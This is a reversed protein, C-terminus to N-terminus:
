GPAQWLRRAGAVGAGEVPASPEGPEGGCRRLITEIVAQRDIMGDAAHDRGAAHQKRACGDRQGFLERGRVEPLIDRAEIARQELVDALEATIQQLRGGRLELPLM